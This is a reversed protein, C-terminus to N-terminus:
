SGVRPGEKGPNRRERYVRSALDRLRELDGQRDEMTVPHDAFKVLDGFRFMEMLPERVEPPVGAQELRGNMEGTTAARLPASFHSAFFVRAEDLLRIYYEKGDIQTLDAQLTRLNRSIRRYPRNERYRQVLLRLWRRLGKGTVLILLPILIVASLGLAILLHTGPLVLPDRIPALEGAGDQLLSSVLVSIGSLELAGLGLPPLQRTGTFFPQFVIRAEFGDARHVIAVSHITVAESSPLPDPVTLNLTESTRVVVRAEVMDGVYFTQPLFVVEAIAQSASTPSSPTQACLAGSGACLLALLALFVPLRVGSALGSWRRGGEHGPPLRNSSTSEGVIM